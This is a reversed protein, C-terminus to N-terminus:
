RSFRADLLQCFEEGADEVDLGFARCFNRRHDSDLLFALRLVFTDGSDLSCVSHRISPDGFDLVYVSPQICPHGLDLACSCIRFILIELIM